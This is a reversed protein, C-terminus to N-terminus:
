RAILEFGYAADRPSWIRVRAGPPATVTISFFGNEDTWRTGGIWTADDDEELRV